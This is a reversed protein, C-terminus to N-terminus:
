QMMGAMEADGGGEPAAAPEPPAEAEEEKPYSVEYQDGHVREIRLTLSDGPKM